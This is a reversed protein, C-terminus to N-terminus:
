KMRMKYLKTGQSVLLEGDRKYLRMDGGLATDEVTKMGTSGKRVSVLEIRDDENLCVVVGTDLVVFNLGTLTIDEVVRVDYSRYDRDFRFVIRDYEGHKKAGVVMLCGGKACHDFKAELVRYEDLEPIRVQHNTGSATFLTIFTSGLMDQVCGGEFMRTAHPLVNAALTTSAVVNGMDSLVVEFVKHKARAYIRGDYSMMRKFKLSFPVDVKNILDYLSGGSVAVPVTMRNSFGVASITGQKGVRRGNLWLGDDTSVVLHNGHTWVGQVQDSFNAVEELILNGSGTIARIIPQVLAVVMHDSPPASREGQAFVAEFWGRLRRPITDFPYTAKPVRVDPHFVSVNAEMRADFGKLTPHKGKFPHIGVLMQFSVIAFGFWDTGENFDRSHKMHRDRISEMIATAPYSRTQYSDTDIFTVNKFDHGVLFNMENPDVLLIGAAHAADFGGRMQKALDFIRATTLGERERFVRPFLQCLVYADKIFKTSYGVPKGHKDLLVHQPRSFLPTPLPALERIKGAPIMKNSDEYVKYATGNKAYVSGEGGAAVFDRQTLIVDGVGQVTLKM